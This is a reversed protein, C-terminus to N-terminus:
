QGGSIRGAAEAAGRRVDEDADGKAAAQLAPLAGKAAAGLKGLAKAARLRVSEDEDSLDRVLVGLAAKSPKAGPRIAQLAALAQRSVDRDPDLLAANLEPVAPLAEPGMAALKKAARLREGADPDRLRRALVAVDEGVQAIGLLRRISEDIARDLDRDLGVNRVLAPVAARAPAGLQGLARVLAEDVCFPYARQPNNLVAILDPLAARADLGMDGLARAAAARAPPPFRGEDNRIITVLQKAVDANQQDRAGQGAAPLPVLLVAALALRSM